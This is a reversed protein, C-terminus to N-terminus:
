GQISLNITGLKEKNVEVDIEYNGDEVSQQTTIGMKDTVIEFIHREGKRVRFRGNNVHANDKTKLSFYLSPPEDRHEIHCLIFYPSKESQFILEDDGGSRTVWQTSLTVAHDQGKIIKFMGGVKKLVIDMLGSSSLGLTELVKTHLHAPPTMELKTLVMRRLIQIEEAIEPHDVLYRNMISVRHHELRDEAFKLIDSETIENGKGTQVSNQRICNLITEINM